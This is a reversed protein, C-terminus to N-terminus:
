ADYTLCISDNFEKVKLLFIVYKFYIKFCCNFKDTQVILTGYHYILLTKMQLM